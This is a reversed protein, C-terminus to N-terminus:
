CPQSRSTYWRASTQVRYNEFADALSRDAPGGLRLVEDTAM